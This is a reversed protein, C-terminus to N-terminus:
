GKKGKANLSLIIGQVVDRFGLTGQEELRDTARCAAYKIIIIRGLDIPTAIL